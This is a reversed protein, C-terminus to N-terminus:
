IKFKSIMEVLKESSDRSGDANKIVDSAKEVTVSVKASINTTGNAGETAADAIGDIAQVVDQISALLEESTASLDEVLNDLFIADKSYQEASDLMMKYDGDMNKAMFDLLANSSDALNSVSKLVTKSIEQIQSVAVASNEALKRIEDAVVAFGKGNEGVRAAEIAANLALLNTQSTIELITQSLENIKNVSKSDDLAKLLKEKTEDFIKVASQQSKVFSDKLEIARKNIKSAEEAGEQAKASIATAANEIQASTASIEESSAATEEMGASLEETTASVDEIQTNMVDIAEITREVSKKLSNSENLIGHIIDQFSKQMDYVAKSMIGIEDKKNLLKGEITDRLDGSGVKNLHESVKVLPKSLYSSVFVAMLAVLVVTIIIAVTNINIINKALALVEQKEIFSIYKWGNSSSTLVNVIHKKGNVTNEIYGDKIKQLNELKDIKLDAINKFNNEPNKNDAIIVGNKDILMISGTKGISFGKLISTLGELSMDITAVGAIKGNDDKFATLLAVAIDGNSFQTPDMVVVKGANEIATKYWGRTRADYGKARASAPYQVYGGNAEAGVAADMIVPNSKVYNVLEKYIEAENGGKALPNMPIKGSSDPTLNIYSTLSGGVNKILNESSLLNLTNKLGEIYLNIGNDVQKIQENTTSVHREFLKSEVINTIFLSICLLPVISVILFAANLKNKLSWLNKGM